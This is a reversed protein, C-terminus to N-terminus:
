EQLLDAGAPPTFIFLAENLRLNKRVESFTVLTTQSLKDVLEFGLLENKQLILRMSDFPAQADKPLLEFRAMGEKAPLANIFFDERLKNQNSLLLAPTKGLADDFNKVTIQNLDIDHIWVKSGDAVIMQKYPKQYDWHFKNPRQVYMKGVATEVLNGAEDFLRQEFNAQLSNLDKLFEDLLTSEAQIGPSFLILFISLYIKNNMLNFEMTTSKLHSRELITFSRNKVIWLNNIQFFAIEM